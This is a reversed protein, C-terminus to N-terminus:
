ASPSLGHLDLTPWDRPAWGSKNRTHSYLLSLSKQNQFAAWERSVSGSGPFLDDFQDDPRAGLLNLIWRAFAPPKQGTILNFGGQIAGCTLLDRVLPGEGWKPRGGRVIVPEWSQHWRGAGNFPRRNTVNWIAMRVDPPCLILVERLAEVSTSLAWGDPYDRVLRAVLEAHDVEGAYDPHDGYLRKSQGPYPPDAYAFRM